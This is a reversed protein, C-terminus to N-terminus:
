STHIPHFAGRGAAYFNARLTTFAHRADEDGASAFKPISSPDDLATSGNLRPQMRHYLLGRTKSLIKLQFDVAISQGGITTGFIEPVWTSAKPHMADERRIAPPTGTGISLVSIEDLNRGLYTFAEFVGVFAPNNAWLGGDVLVDMSGDLAVGPLYFPAASTAMAVKWAPLRYDIKLDEHHSTKFVRPSGTTATVAPICLRTFADGITKDGLVDRLAALLPENRHKSGWAMRTNGGFRSPFIEPGRIQYFELIKAAPIGLALGIGIIGGTSTGAILDFHEHTPRGSLEELRALASAAYAGRLGGGDLSLIRFRPEAHM